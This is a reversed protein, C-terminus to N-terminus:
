GVLCFVSHALSSPLRFSFLSHANVAEEFAHRSGVSSFDNVGTPGLVPFLESNLQARLLIETSNEDHIM